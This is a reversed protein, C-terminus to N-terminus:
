DFETKSNISLSAEPELKVVLDGDKDINVVITGIDENKKNQATVTLPGGESGIDESNRPSTSYIFSTEKTSDSKSRGKNFHTNQFSGTKIEKKMRVSLLAMWEKYTNFFGILIFILVGQLVNLILFPWQFYVAAQRVNLVGTMWFIGYVIMVSFISAVTKMHSSMDKQSKRKKRQSIFVKIVLAFAVINFIIVSYIPILFLPIHTRIDSM